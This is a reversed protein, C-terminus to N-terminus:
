AITDRLFPSQLSKSVVSVQDTMMAVIRCVIEDNIVDIVVNIEVVEVVFMQYCVM